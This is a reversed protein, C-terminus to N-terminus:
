ATPTQQSALQAVQREISVTFAWDGSTGRNLYEIKQNAGIDKFRSSAWDNRPGVENWGKERGGFAGFITVDAEHSANQKWLSPDGNIFRGQAREWQSLFARFSSDTAADSNGQAQTYAIEPFVLAVVLLMIRRM